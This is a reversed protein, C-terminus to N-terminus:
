PLTPAILYMAEMALGPEVGPLVTEFVESMTGDAYMQSLLGDVMLRFEADGRAMALGQKEVTLIDDLMNLRSDLRGAVFNVFLISRDAFYADIQGDLLAQIGAPHTDFREMRAEIAAARFSNRVATETTTQSRMGVTKGALEMLSTAGGIPLLVSTGDVYIPISFDVTERRGLTITAAGCLLDIEGSAVKDFRDGTGVTVYRADLTALQLRNAIDQVIRNCIMPAYGAPRGQTDIYSLPPADSRIGIRIQQTDRIRDLTQASAGFAFLAVVLGTLTKLM